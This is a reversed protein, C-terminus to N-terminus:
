LHFVSYDRLGCCTTRHKQKNMHKVEKMFYKTLGYLTFLSKSYGVQGQEFHSRKKFALAIKNKLNSM